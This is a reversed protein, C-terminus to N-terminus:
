AESRLTAEDSSAFTTSTSRPFFRPVDFDSGFRRRMEAEENISLRAYMVPLISFMALTVLTPWQLLFGM